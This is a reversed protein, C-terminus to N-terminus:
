GYTLIRIGGLGCGELLSFDEMVGYGEYDEILMNEKGDEFRFDELQVYEPRTYKETCRQVCIYKM